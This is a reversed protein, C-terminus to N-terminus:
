TGSCVAHRVRRLDGPETAPAPHAVRYAAQATGSTRPRRDGWRSRSLRSTDRPGGFNSWLKIPDIAVVASYHVTVRVVNGPFPPRPDRGGGASGRHSGSRVRRRVSAVGHFQRARCRYDGPWCRRPSHVDVVGARVLYRGGVGVAAVRFQCVLCEQPADTRGLSRVVRALGPHQQTSYPRGRADFRGGQACRWRESSGAAGQSATWTRRCHRSPSAPQRRTPSGHSIQGSAPGTGCAAASALRRRPRPWV